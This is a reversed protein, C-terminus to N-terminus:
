VFLVTGKTYYGLALTEIGSNDYFVPIGQEFDDNGIELTRGFSQSGALRLM